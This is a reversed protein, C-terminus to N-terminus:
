VLYFVSPHFASQSEQTAIQQGNGVRNQDRSYRRAFPVAKSRQLGFLSPLISIGISATVRVERSDVSHPLALATLIKEAVLAARETRDIEPLLIVFEDGGQRSVTDTHRLTKCLRQAIALLVADGVLPGLSDNILKFNDV